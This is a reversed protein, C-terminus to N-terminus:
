KEFELKRILKWIDMDISIKILDDIKSARRSSLINDICKVRSEYCKPIESNPFLSKVSNITRLLEPARIFDLAEVLDEVEDGHTGTLYSEIGGNMIGNVASSLFFLRSQWKPLMRLCANPDESQYVRQSILSSQDAVWEYDDEEDIPAKM